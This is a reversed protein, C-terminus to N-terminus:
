EQEAPMGYFVRETVDRARRMVALIDNEFRQGQNADYGLYVAIGGLSYLDDPLIDAQTARGSWLFNGNRAATCMTWSRRLAEADTPEILANQELENLAQMTSQTRLDTDTGAHQLQLLQITWEVDSLGGKGLKLHRERHVGRPLREAEMRAKLKRIEALQTDDLPTTPYRLPNAIHELFDQALQADGAVYRARLLAQHEWTSAWTRYYEECSAYSRVLPGNKGEPRLDMDLEIKPELSIPGQVMQRLKDQVKRACQHAATDDANHNPRYIIIVDADSSFNVERGGYRGMGIISMVAPPEDLGQERLYDNMSWQLAAALVADYVDTMGILSDELTVVANMWGLGIREIEHRRLARLATAAEKMASAHRTIIAQCQVDLRDRSRPSLQTDNGLWTISELSKNLADGLFRSNSLVHCLRGCASPNDRLFGLYEHEGGFHEELKRWYLLGMDPNQGNGLWHLVAPLLIRNIKAARTIGETLAGVHRMAAEADAFGVSEFREVTAQESLRFPEDGVSASIPLMPRYYIDMHLRRIEHRTEDYRAVLEEAHMDFSRALRVLEANMNLSDISINRKRDLGGISGNGLDPFLHTRKLAWMQQRHEMVREFRYDWSLRKAQERSVYGGDALAQLSALTASTHLSEDTRGHVLQLMQVTFEVDRLGGKGLKIERDKLAPAILDEVRERMHQCDLVFNERKSASWVFPRTMAMYADGLRQDGAVPRAKLLAQFEWNEAWQEYYAKHSELRRVLVGDKGEPRLAGDIQWLIPESVGAIVSQCVRQLLTAMKTGIRTLQMNSVHGPADEDTVLPEVVYILDVDSVYNLERAGLKGMGIITFRVLASQDVQGYAIALAGQLAADALDSLKRSIQPQLFIPDDATVDQAMIAALQERYQARLATTAQALDLHSVPRGEDDPEAEISTLLAQRREDANMDGYHHPDAAAADVLAPRSRMLKGMADSAGLVQILTAFDRMNGIRDPLNINQFSLGHQIDVLSQLATDPDDAKVLMAIISDLQGCDYGAASLQEFHQKAKSVEQLGAHLLARTSIATDDNM